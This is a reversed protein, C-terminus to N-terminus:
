VPVAYVVVNGDYSRESRDYGGGCTILTLVPRGTAAFVRAPLREKDYLRRGVVRFRRRSGDAYSVVVADGPELDALRFFV